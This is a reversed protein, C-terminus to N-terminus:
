KHLLLHWFKKQWSGGQHLVLEQEEMVALSHMNEAGGDCKHQIKQGSEASQEEFLVHDASYYQQFGEAPSCQKGGLKQGAQHPPILFALYVSLLHSTTFLM